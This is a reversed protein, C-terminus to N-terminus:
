NEQKNKGHGAEGKEETRQVTNSSIDEILSLATEFEEMYKFCIEVRPYRETDKKEYVCIKDILSVVVERSM